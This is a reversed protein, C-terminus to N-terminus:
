KKPIVVTAEGGYVIAKLKLANGWPIGKLSARIRAKVKCISINFYM